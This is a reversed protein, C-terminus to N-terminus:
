KVIQSEFEQYIKILKNEEIGWNYKELIAKKGREGMKMSEADNKLVRKIAEAIEFINLPDVCFGCNETSIIQEWMKFNSAIVPIGAAMYEFMKVPLSDIYNLTPHLTVLGVKSKSLISVIRKRDVYGVYEVNKWGESNILQNKYNEPQFVGALIMNCKAYKLAEICEYVGRVKSIGGIYCVDDTKEEWSSEMADVFEEVFPYNYVVESNKNIELFREKIHSTSTLIYNFKKSIHNEVREIFFSLVKRISKLLYPKTLVQRPLDEHVDYVVKKNAKLLKKGIFMLEPDHFHYIDADLEIAKKYLHKSTNIFRDLRSKPKKIGLIRVNNNIEDDMGDAVILTVDFDHKALSVCEKLFIRVDYRPHVSTLHCIKLNKKM